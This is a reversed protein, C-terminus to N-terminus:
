RSHWGSLFACSLCGLSPFLTVYASVSIAGSFRLYWSWYRLLEREADSLGAENQFRLCLPCAGIRHTCSGRIHGSDCFRQGTCLCATFTSVGLGFNPLWRWGWLLYQQPKGWSRGVARNGFPLSGWSRRRWCLGVAVAILNPGRAGLLLPRRPRRVWHVIIGSFVIFWFCSVFILRCHHRGM